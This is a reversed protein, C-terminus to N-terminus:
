TPDHNYLLLFYIIKCKTALELRNVYFLHLAQYLFYIIFPTRLYISIHILFTALFSTSM